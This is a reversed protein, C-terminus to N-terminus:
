LEGLKLSTKKLSREGQYVKFQMQGIKYSISIHLTIAVTNQPSYCLSYNESRTRNSTLIYVGFSSSFSSCFNMELTYPQVLVLCLYFRALISSQQLVISPFFPLFVVSCRCQIYETPTYHLRKTTKREQQQEMTPFDEPIFKMGPKNRYAKYTWGQVM